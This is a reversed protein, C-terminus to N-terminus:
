SPYKGISKPTCTFGYLNVSRLPLAEDPSTAYARLHVVPADRLAWCPTPIANIAGLLRDSSAMNGSIKKAKKISRTVTWQQKIGRIAPLRWLVRIAVPRFLVRRAPAGTGVLRGCDTCETRLAM